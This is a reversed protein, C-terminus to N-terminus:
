GGKGGKRAAGNTCFWREAPRGGTEESRCETLGFRALLGLARAIRPASHHGGLMERIENRTRPSLRLFTLIEDAIDDGLSDGFIFRVSRDCYSWLALAAQLHEARVDTSRDLLAYICALRMTQAEARALLAGALGPKGESLQAYERHWIERAMEVRQMEGATRAFNIAKKLWEVFPQLDVMRGGDPLCKSRRVCLWLFRNGFGSAAETNSLYRRLEDMTIHGIMSVHADTAKAPANKTLTRLSGTEWAQRIIASLTNGQREIQRLVVAYEPEHILLRKDAEGPDAEYEQVATVRGREKVKERAIIPDRVNWILGEGSSLGGIIRRETWDPEAEEFLRRVRGWSTGKRGKATEGVLVAFLNLFHRDGEVRFHAHRGITNGFALLFQALLAIPDSETEPKLAEIVEGALGQYAEVGPPEPWPPESRSGLPDGATHGGEWADGRQDEPWPDSAPKPQVGNRERLVEVLTKSAAM